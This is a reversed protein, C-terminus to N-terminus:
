SLSPILPRSVELAMQRTQLLSERRFVVSLFAAPEDEYAAHIGGLGTMGAPCIVPKEQRAAM